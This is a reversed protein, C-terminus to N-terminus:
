LHSFTLHLRLQWLGKLLCDDNYGHILCEWIKLTGSREWEKACFPPGELKRETNELPTRERM